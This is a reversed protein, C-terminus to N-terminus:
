PNTEHLIRSAERLGKLLRPSPINFWSEQVHYVHKNKVAKLTSWGARGDMRSLQRHAVLIVDPDLRLITEWDIQKWGERFINKGGARRIVDGAYSDAGATWIPDATAEYYVTPSHNVASVAAVMELLKDAAKTAEEEHSTITGLTRLADAIEEFNRPQISFVPYGKQELARTSERTMTADTLILDPNLSILKEYNIIIHGIRTKSKAEEPFNCRSTVGAVQDGAGVAFLLETVSPVLSVIREPNAPLTIEKGRADKM